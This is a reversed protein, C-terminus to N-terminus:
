WRPHQSNKHFSFKCRLDDQKLLSKIILIDDRNAIALLLCQMQLKSDHIAL